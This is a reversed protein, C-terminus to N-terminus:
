MDYDKVYLIFITDTIVRLHISGYLEQYLLFFFNVTMKLSAFGIQLNLVGTLLPLYNHKSVFTFGCADVSTMQFAFTFTFFRKLM